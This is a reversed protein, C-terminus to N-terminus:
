NTAPFVKVRDPQLSTDENKVKIEFSQRLGFESWNTYERGLIDGDADYVVVQVERYDEIPDGTTSALEGLVKILGSEDYYATCSTLKVENIEEMQEDREIPIKIRPM